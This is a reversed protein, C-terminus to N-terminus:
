WCNAYGVVDVRTQQSYFEPSRVRQLSELEAPIKEFVNYKGNQHSPETLFVTGVEVNTGLDVTWWPNAQVGTQMCSGDDLNTDFSGDVAKSAVHSGYTSIQWTNQNLALNVGTVCIYYYLKIMYWTVDVHLM